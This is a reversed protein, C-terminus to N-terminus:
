ALEEALIVANLTWRVVSAWREDGAKVVPGLPEKSVVDSLIRDM